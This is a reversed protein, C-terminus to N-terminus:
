CLLAVLAWVVHALYYLIPCLSLPLKRYKYSTQELLIKLHLSAALVAHLMKGDVCYDCHSRVAYQM